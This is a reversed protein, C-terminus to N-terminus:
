NTDDKSEDGLPIRRAFGAISFGTLEGKKVLGWLDDDFVKVTLMWTGAKITLTTGDSQVLDFDVPALWSEVPRVQENVISKHQLGMNQFDLLWLHATKRIEEDTYTDGQSDSIDPELVIGTVLRLDGNEDAEVKEMGSIAKCFHAKGPEIIKPTYDAQERAKEYFQCFAQLM